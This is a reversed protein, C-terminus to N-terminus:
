KLAEGLLKEISKVIALETEGKPVGALKLTSLRTSIWLENPKSNNKIKELAELGIAACKSLDESLTEIEKLVPLANIIDVLKSHNNKWLNLWKTIAITKSEDKKVDKIFSDVLQNFERAVEPDPASVDVVRTLPYYSKFVHPHDRSYTYLPQIVDVFNKLVEVNYNNTLRRLMMEYNKVHTLGLEELHLNVISLRRYMDQVDNVYGPSWLREAIAATRPWIRSDITEPDVFEAWMTAEGGLIKEKVTNELISDPPIPDNLYHYDTPQVLDIYFGHSLLSRYGNRSTQYLSARGKWAQVIYDKSLDPMEDTYWGVMTKNLPTLIKEVRKNFYNQLDHNNKLKNQVKFEQIKKNADWQKGNNEDGGIHWYEDPFLASMEKFFVTLFNYTEDNTPDFTPNFIGWNREISYPGPASAFEPYGVLWSTAHGPLDFEPVVRIGRDAAYDVIDIIQEHTYYLGDSGLEHLKPLSKSEIRFGHDDTLHWHLVNMKVAGMADLNRKIVEIPMFHRSVDILLGRWPFRPKDKIEVGQLYYGSKDSNLLQVLTALGHIAGINTAADIKVSKENVILNYSEDVGLKVEGVKSINISLANTKSSISIVPFQDKFFLGTRESLIKLTRQAAKFLRKDDNNISITFSENLLFKGATVNMKEPVPMLNLYKSDSQALLNISILCAMMLINLKAFETTRM